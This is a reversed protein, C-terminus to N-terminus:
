CFRPLIYKNIGLSILNSKNKPEDTTHASTGLNDKLADNLHLGYIPEFRNTTLVLNIHDVTLVPAKSRRQFKHAQQLVRRLQLEIVPLMTHVFSPSLPPLRLSSAVDQLWSDSLGAM